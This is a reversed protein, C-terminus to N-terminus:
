ESAKGTVALSEGTLEKSASGFGSRREIAGVRRELGRGQEELVSVREPVNRLIGRLENVAETNAKLSGNVEGKWILNGAAGGALFLTISALVGM